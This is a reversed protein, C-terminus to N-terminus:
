VEFSGILVFECFRGIQTLFQYFGQSLLIIQPLGCLLATPIMSSLEDFFNAEGFLNRWFVGRSM